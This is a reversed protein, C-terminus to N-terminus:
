ASIVCLKQFINGSPRGTQKGPSTCINGGLRAKAADVELERQAIYAGVAATKNKMLGLANAYGEGLEGTEPDIDDLQAQLEASVQYITLSSM